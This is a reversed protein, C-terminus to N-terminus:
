LALCSCIVVSIASYTLGLIYQPVLTDFGEKLSPEFEMMQNYDSEVQDDKFDERMIPLLRQECAENVVGNMRTYVIRVEDIINNDYLEVLDATIRRADELNPNQACYLFQVDPIIGRKEFFESAMHGITFISSETKNEAILKEAFALVRHNYDGVLGNDSAIVVYATRNTERHCLYPHDVSEAHNLIDKLIGRVRHSYAYNRQYNDNAKRLKSVSILQMAKTIQGTDKVSKIRTKIDVMNQM